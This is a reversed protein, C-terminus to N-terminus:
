PASRTLEFQYIVLLSPLPNPPAEAQWAAQIAPDITVLIDFDRLMDRAAERRVPQFITRRSKKMQLRWGRAELFQALDVIDMTQEKQYAWFAPSVEHLWHVPMQRPIVLRLLWRGDSALIREVQTILDQFDDPQFTPFPTHVVHFRGSPLDKLADLLIGGPFLQHLTVEPWKRKDLLLEPYGPRPVDLVHIDEVGAKRLKRLIRSLQPTIRYRTRSREEWQKLYPFALWDGAATTLEPWLTIGFAQAEQSSTPRITFCGGEIRRLFPLQDFLPIFEPHPCVSTIHPESVDLFVSRLSDRVLGRREQPTAEEWVEKMDIFIRSAQQIAELDVKPLSLLRDQYAEYEKEFVEKKNPLHDYYGLVYSQRLNELIHMLKQREQEVEGWADEDHFLNKVEAMWDDPLQIHLFLQSVQDEVLDADAGINRNPCQLGRKHAMERYYRRNNPNAQARLPMGCLACYIIGNLLYTRYSTRYARGKSRRINRAKQVREWLDRSIIPAHKGPHIEPSEDRYGYVVDGVYFRNRLIDRVADATFMSPDKQLRPQESANHQLPPTQPESIARPHGRRRYGLRNLEEAIDQMSYRTTAYMEFIRRVVEAEEPAIQFPEDPTQGKRYGYPAISANHLGQRVRQRKSKSVHQKLIDVYYQHLLTLLHLILRDHAKTYDFQQEKVSAFGVKHQGMQAFIDFADYVNRSLRSLDHVLIIDFHGEKMDEMMHQFEPRDMKTASVGADVYEAVIKWGRAQAYERMEALQADISKGEVQMESSVRAYLAVRQPANSNQTKHRKSTRRPM